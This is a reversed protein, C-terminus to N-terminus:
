PEGLAMLSGEPSVNDDVRLLISLLNAFYSGGWPIGRDVWGRVTGGVVELDRDSGWDFWSPLGEDGALPDTGVM